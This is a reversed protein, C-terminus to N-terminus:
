AAGDGDSGALADYVSLPRQKVEPEPGVPRLMGVRQRRLVAAVAKHRPDTIV